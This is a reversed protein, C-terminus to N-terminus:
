ERIEFGQRRLFAAVVPQWAQPYATFLMHGDNGHPPFQVFEGQGGAARFAEFWRRPHTAGFYLDNETYVWLTPLRATEGYGAFLRELQHPMCPRRPSGQPNGGGGGAFNIAAVMGAPQRAAVAIATAGGYSQGAIVAREPAVDPRAHMAKLVALVQEAAAAYGPPYNKRQCAGTDEVDEGGTVGYGIRTPVAVAFGQRAFWASAEPYRSRGVAARGSPSGSRGHNLVLVPRPAPTEDDVFVTVVITRSIQKRYADVVDVPLEFSEEVLAAQAAPLAALAVAALLVRRLRVNM